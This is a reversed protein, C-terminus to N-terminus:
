FLGEVPFRRTIPKANLSDIRMGFPFRETDNYGPIRFQWPFANEIFSAKGPLVKIGVAGHEHPFGAPMGIHIATNDRRGNAVISIESNQKQVILTVAGHATM